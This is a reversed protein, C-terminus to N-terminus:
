DIIAGMRQRCSRQLFLPQILHSRIQLRGSIRVRHEPALPGVGGM